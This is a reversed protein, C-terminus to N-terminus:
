LSQCHPYREVSGSMDSRDAAGTVRHGRDLAGAFCGTSVFLSCRSHRQCHGRRHSGAVESNLQASSYGSGASGRWGPAARATARETRSDHGGPAALSRTDAAGQTGWQKRSMAGAVVAPM